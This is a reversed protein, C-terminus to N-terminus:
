EEFNDGESMWDPEIEGLNFNFRQPLVEIELIEPNRLLDGEFTVLVELTIEEQSQITSSGMPMYEKDIGDWKEFTFTSYLEFEANFFMRIVLHDDGYDVAEFEPSEPNNLFELRVLKEEVLDVDFNFYSDAEPTFEIKWSQNSVASFVETEIGLADSAKYQILLQQSNYEAAERQFFSLSTALDDIYIIRDSNVCYSKWDGDKSVALIKTNNQLAWSELSLVALADPFEHKKSEKNAFPPKHTFYRELVEAISVYNEADVIVAGIDDIFKDLRNQAITIATNEEFISSITENVKEDQIAWSVSVAKLAKKFTSQSEEADKILHASLEKVIVDSLVVKINSDKFQQLRKLLGSELKRYHGDFISTDISIASIDGNAIQQKIQETTLIM